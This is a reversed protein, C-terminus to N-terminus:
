LSLDMIDRAQQGIKDPISFLIDRNYRTSPLLDYYIDSIDSMSAESIKKLSQFLASIRDGIDVKSDYNNGFPGPTEFGHSRLTQLTGHHGFIVFPQLGAIAKCTKETIFMDKTDGEFYSETVINFYSELYPDRDRNGYAHDATKGSQDVNIDITWPLSAFTKDQVSSLKARVAAPLMASYQNLAATEPQWDGAYALSPMSLLSSQRMDLQEVMMALLFRHWRPRRNFSLIKKPRLTRWGSEVEADTVLTSRGGHWRHRSFETASYALFFDLGIITCGPKGSTQRYKQYRDLIGSNSVLVVVRLPDLGLLALTEDLMPFFQDGLGAEWSYDLLIKLGRHRDLLQPLCPLVEALSPEGARGLWTTPAGFLGIPFYAPDAGLGDLCRHRFFRRMASFEAHQVLPAVQIYDAAGKYNAPVGEAVIADALFALNIQGRRLPPLRRPARVATVQPKTSITCRVVAFALARTDISPGLAAPATANPHLLRLEMPAIAFEGPIEFVLLTGDRVVAHGIEHNNVAVTLRQEALNPLNIHPRIQLQLRLDGFPLPSDLRISSQSGIAWVFGHEDAGWGDLLFPRANGDSGFHLDFIATDPPLTISTM